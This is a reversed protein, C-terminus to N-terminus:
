AAPTPGPRCPCSSAAFAPAPRSRTDRRPSLRSFRAVARRRVPQQALAPASRRRSEPYASNRSIRRERRQVRARTGFVDNAAMCTVVAQGAAGLRSRLFTNEPGSRAVHDGCHRLHLRLTLICQNSDTSAALSPTLHFRQHPFLFSFDALQLGKCKRREPMQESVPPVLFYRSM